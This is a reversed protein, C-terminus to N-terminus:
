GLLEGCAALVRKLSVDRIGKEQWLETMTYASAPRVIRSAACAPAFARDYDLAWHKGSIWSIEVVPVGSAAAIHKPASDNGVFLKCRRLIAALQPITTKGLFDVQPCKATLIARDSEAGVCITRFGYRLSLASSLEAYLETPWRHHGSSAGVGLAVWERGAMLEDAHKEDAESTWVMPTYAPGNYGLRSLLRFPALWAPELPRVLQVLDNFYSNPNVGEPFHEQRFAIKLPADIAGAVVGANMYDPSPRPAILLDFAMGKAEAVTEIPAIHDLFPCTAWYGATKGTCIMTIEATPWYERCARVLGSTALADGLHDMRLIALNM